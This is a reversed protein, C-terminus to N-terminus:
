IISFMQRHEDKWIYKWGDIPDPVGHLNSFVEKDFKHQWRDPIFKHLNETIGLSSSVPNLFKLCRFTRNVAVGMATHDTYTLPAGVAGLQANGRYLFM